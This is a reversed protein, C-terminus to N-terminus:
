FCVGDLRKLKCIRLIYYYTMPAQSLRYPAAASVSGRLLLLSSCVSWLPNVFGQLSSDSLFFDVHDLRENTRSNVDEDARNSNKKEIHLYITLIKTSECRVQAGYGLLM